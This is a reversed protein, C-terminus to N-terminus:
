NGLVSLLDAAHATLRRCKESRACPPVRSHTRLRGNHSRDASGRMTCLASYRKHLVVASFRTRRARRTAPCAFSLLTQSAHSPIHRFVKPLVDIQHLPSSFLMAVADAAGNEKPLRGLARIDQMLRTTANTASSAAGDVAPDSPFRPQSASATARTRIRVDSASPKRRTAPM